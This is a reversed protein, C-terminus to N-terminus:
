MTDLSHPSGGCDLVADHRFIQEGVLVAVADVEPVQTRALIHLRDVEAGIM